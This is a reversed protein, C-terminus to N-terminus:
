LDYFRSVRFYFFALEFITFDLFEPEFIRFDLFAFFALQLEFITFDFFALEFITLDLRELTVTCGYPVFVLFVKDLVRFLQDTFGQGLLEFYQTGGEVGGGGGQLVGVGWRVM